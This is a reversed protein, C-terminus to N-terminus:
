APGQEPKLNGACRLGDMQKHIDMVQNEIPSGHRYKQLLQGAGVSTFGQILLCHIGKRKGPALVARLFRRVQLCRVAVKRRHQTPNLYVAQGDRVVAGGWVSGKGRRLPYCPIKRAWGDSRRLAKYLFCADGLASEEKRRKGIRQGFEGPLRLAQEARDVIAPVIGPKVFGDAHQHASQRYIDAEILLMGNGIGQAGNLLLEELGHVM